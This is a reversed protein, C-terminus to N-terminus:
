KYLGFIPKSLIIRSSHISTIICANISPHTSLCFPLSLSICLYTSSHTTYSFRYTYSVYRDLENKGCNRQFTEEQHGQEHFEYGTEEVIFSVRACPFYIGDNARYEDQIIFISLPLSTAVYTQRQFERTKTARLKPPFLAAINLASAIPGWWGSALLSFFYGPM